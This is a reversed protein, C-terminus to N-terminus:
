VTSLMQDHAGSPARCSSQSVPQGDTAVHSQFSPHMDLFFSNFVDLVPAEIEFRVGAFRIIKFNTALRVYNEAIYLESDKKFNFM